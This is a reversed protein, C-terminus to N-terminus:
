INDKETSNSDQSIQSKYSSRIEHSLEEQEKKDPELVKIAIM